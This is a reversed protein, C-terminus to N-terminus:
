SRRLSWVFLGFALISAPLTVSIIWFILQHQAPTIHIRYSARPKAAIGIIDERGAMWNLAASLFDVNSASLTDRDLLTPNGVVVMRSSIVRLRADRVAGRDISVGVIVPPPTDDADFVPLEQLYRTEGWYRPGAYLLPEMRIGRARLFDEDTRLELSQTQGALTTSAGALPRTISAQEHFLAQVEFQRRPGAATSEAYLVRDDRPAVGNEALLEHLRPTTAAPDLLVLMASQRQEWYDRLMAQERESLDYRPAALVVVAADDPINFTEALSLPRLELNLGRTIQRLSDFPSDDGAAPPQTRGAKGTLYYVVPTEGETVSMVASTLAEEGRFEFVPEDDTGRQEVLEIEPIIRSRGDASVVITNSDLALGFELKLEEARSPSRAPDFAELRVRGNGHRRYEETLARVDAALTAQSTFASIITVDQRLQGLLNISTSSLTHSAGATLDWREYHRYGLYNVIAFLLLTLLVQLAVNIGIGLRRIPRPAEAAPAQDDPRTADASGEATGSAAAPATTVAVAPDGSVSPVVAPADTTGAAPADGRAATGAEPTAGAAAKAEAKPKRKSSSMLRDRPAATAPM